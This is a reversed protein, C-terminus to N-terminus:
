LKEEKTENEEKIVPLSALLHTTGFTFSPNDLTKVASPVDVAPKENEKVSNEQPVFVFFDKTTALESITELQESKKSVSQFMTLLEKAFDQPQVDTQSKYSDRKSCTTITAKKDLPASQYLIAETLRDSLGKTGVLLPNCACAWLTSTSVYPWRIL